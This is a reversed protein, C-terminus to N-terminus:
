AQWVRAGDRSLRTRVGIWAGAANALLDVTAPFRRHTFLQYTEVTLSLLVASGVLAWTPQSPQARRAAFGYPLFLLVNLLLDLPEAGHTFPVWEVKDWHTHLRFSTWPWTTIFVILAAAVLWAIGWWRQRRGRM